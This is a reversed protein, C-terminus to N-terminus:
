GQANLDELQSQLVVDRGKRERWLAFSTHEDSWEFRDPQERVPSGLMDKYGAVMGEFSAGDWYRFRM